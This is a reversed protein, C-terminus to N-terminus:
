TAFISEKKPFGMINLIDSLSISDEKIIGVRTNSLSITKVREKTCGYIWVPIKPLERAIWQSLTEGNASAFMSESEIIIMKIENQHLTKLYAKANKVMDIRIVTFNSNNESLKCLSTYLGDLKGVLVVVGQRATSRFRVSERFCNELALDLSQRDYEQTKM